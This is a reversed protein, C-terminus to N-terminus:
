YYACMLSSSTCDKGVIPLSVAVTIRPQVSTRGHQAVRICPTQCRRCHRPCPQHAAPDGSPQVDTVLRGLAIGPAILAKLGRKGKVKKTAVLALVAPAVMMMTEGLDSWSKDVEDDGLAVFFAVAKDILPADTGNTVVGELPQESM